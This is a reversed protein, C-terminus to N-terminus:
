RQSERSAEWAAWAQPTDLDVLDNESVEVDLVAEPDSAIVERAGQDGSIAGLMELYAGDFLVPQGRLGSPTRPCIIRAGQKPDFAALLRNILGAGVNPQDALLIMVAAAGGVANVGRRLSESMGLAARDTEVVRCALGALAARKAQNGAEIVVVLEDLKSRLAAEASHRLLPKGDIERLLKDERGMRSSAGAALLIGVRAGSQKAGGLRPQIRGPTEKLLGGVGMAAIDGGGLPLGAAIRELVFDAGNLAPSRVCGPLGVVPCDGLRGLVLLNGPDVPMGLRLVAGGAQAIASPIVDRRDSTASGGLILVPNKAGALARTIAGTEHAVHSVAGLSWNVAALRAEIQAEAKSLLSDKQGSVRTLIVDAQRPQFPHLMIMGTSIKSIAQDVLSKEVGYPIIKITAILAGERVRAFPALTAITIAEDVGNVAAVADADLTVVGASKAILNVRGAVPLSACLAPGLAAQGLLSAASNEGLDDKGLRAVIVQTIGAALLATCDKESLVAGKSFKVGGARMSHALVAGAADGVHEAGFIM